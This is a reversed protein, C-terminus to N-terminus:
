LIYGVIDILTVTATISGTIQCVHVILPKELHNVKANYQEEDKLDRMVDRRALTTYPIKQSTDENKKCIFLLLM